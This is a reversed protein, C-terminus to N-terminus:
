NVQVFLDIATPVSQNNTQAETYECSEPTDQWRTLPRCLGASVKM